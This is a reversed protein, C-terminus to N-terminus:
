IVQLKSYVLDVELTANEVLGSIWHYIVSDDVLYEPPHAKESLRPVGPQTTAGNEICFLPNSVTIRPHSPPCRCYSYGYVAPLTSNM